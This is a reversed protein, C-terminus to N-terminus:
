PRGALQKEAQRMLDLLTEAAAAAFPPENINRELEIVPIGPNVNAKIADFCAADAAPDWFAKGASDLMSLGRLPLLIAVPGTAANAAAAIMGGIRGNEEINTRLLTATPAWRYLNRRQYKEPVSELAGFNAMDVCGPVLVAPLGARSAALGREPGASAEGGCVEDALETMTIDLSAAIYGEGILNEMTRGGVGTAHFVLVECGQSEIISRAHDVCATTNGFMSATVLPKEDAIAPTEAQVMGTIAAAANAYVRASIRNIGAVDVISPMMVIDAAGVFARVDGSALTSVMLKPLGLPLARMGATAVTTGGSGGMGLIGDLQGEDYLRRALAALGRGMAKLAKEREDGRRLAELDVGAAEAVADRSIDPAIGAQGLIGIDVLLARMGQKELLAKVLAFEAAKTDLAGALVITKKAGTM